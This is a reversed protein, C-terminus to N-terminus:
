LQRLNNTGHQNNYSSKNKRHTTKGHSAGKHKMQPQSTVDSRSEVHIQLPLIETGLIRSQGLMSTKKYATPMTHADMGGGGGVFPLPFESPLPPRFLSLETPKPPPRELKSKGTSLTLNILLSNTLKSNISIEFSVNNKM